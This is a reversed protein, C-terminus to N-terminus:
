EIGLEQCLKGHSTAKILRTITLATNYQVTQFNDSFSENSPQDYIVNRYCLRSLTKCVVQLYDNLINSAFYTAIKLPAVVGELNNKIKKM